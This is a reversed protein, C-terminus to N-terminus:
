EFQFNNLISKSSRHTEKSDVEGNMEDAEDETVNLENQEQWKTMKGSGDM